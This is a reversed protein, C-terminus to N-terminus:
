RLITRSITFSVPTRVSARSALPRVHHVCRRDTAKETHCASTADATSKPSRLAQATQHFPTRDPTRPQTSFPLRSTLPFFPFRSCLSSASSTRHSLRTYPRAHVFAVNLHAVQCEPSTRLRDPHKNRLRCCTRDKCQLPPSTKSSKSRCQILTNCTLSFSSHITKLQRRHHPTRTSHANCRQM